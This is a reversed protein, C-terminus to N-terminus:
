YMDSRTSRRRWCTAMGSVEEDVTPAVACCALDPSAYPIEPVWVETTSIPAAGDNGGAILVSGNILRTATHGARATLLPGTLTRRATLPELVEASELRKGSTLGGGAVLFRM